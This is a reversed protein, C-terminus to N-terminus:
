IHILFPEVMHLHLAYKLADHLSSECLEINTSPLKLLRVIYIRLLIFM